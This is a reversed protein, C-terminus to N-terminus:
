FLLCLDCCDDDTWYDDLEEEHHPTTLNMKCILQEDQSVELNDIPQQTLIGQRSKKLWEGACSYHYQGTEGPNNITVMIDNSEIPQLCIPCEEM